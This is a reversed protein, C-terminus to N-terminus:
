ITVEVPIRRCVIRHPYQSENERYARLDDYAERRSDSATLDEWGCGYNGQVTWEDATKRIYTM